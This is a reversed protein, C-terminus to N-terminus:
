RLAPGACVATAGTAAGGAAGATAGAAAARAALEDLAAMWAAVNAPQTLEPTPLIATGKRGFMLGPRSALEPATLLPVINRAYQDADMFLLGMLGETISSLWAKGGYFSSRINSRVFGPNLGYIQRGAAAWHLVLAENGVVTKGHTGMGGYSAESNLDRPETWQGSGPMGMVFVRARDPLRPMLSKLMVHRSLTSVAMDMEIGEATVTRTPGPMIGTTLVVADLDGPLEGATLPPLLTLTLPERHKLALASQSVHPSTEDCCM